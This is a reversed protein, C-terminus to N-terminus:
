ARLATAGAEKVARSIIRHRHFRAEMGEALIQRLSVKLAMVLNVAPTGFYSPKRAEYAEMIPLWNAWDAYYNPVPTKRQAFAKMAAPSQGM